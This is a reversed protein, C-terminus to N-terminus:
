GLVVRDNPCVELDTVGRAGIRDQALLTALDALEVIGEGGVLRDGLM